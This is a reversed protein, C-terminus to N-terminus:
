PGRSAESPGGGRDRSAFVVPERNLGDGELDAERAVLVVEVAGQADLGDFWVGYNDAADTAVWRAM